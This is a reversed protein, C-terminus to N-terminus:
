SKQKLQERQDLIYDGMAFIVSILMSVIFVVQQNWGWDTASFYIFETVIFFIIVLYWRSWRQKNKKSQRVKDHQKENLVVM